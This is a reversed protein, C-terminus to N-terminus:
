GALLKAPPAKAIPPLARNATRAPMQQREVGLYLALKADCRARWLVGNVRACWAGRNGPLNLKKAIESPSLGKLTLDFIRRDVGKLTRKALRIAEARLIADAPQACSSDVAETAERAVEDNGHYSLRLPTEGLQIGQPKLVGRMAEILEDRLPVRGLRRILRERMDHFLNDRRRRNRGGFHREITGLRIYDRICRHVAFCFYDFREEDNIRVQMLLGLAGDSVMDDVDGIYFDPHANRLANAHKAAFPLFYEVLPHHASADGDIKLRRWLAEGAADDCRECWFAPPLPWRRPFNARRSNDPRTPM